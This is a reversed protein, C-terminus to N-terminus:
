AGSLFVALVDVPTAGLAGAVKPVGVGEETGRVGETASKQLIPVEKDMKSMFNLLKTLVMGFKILATTTSDLLTM